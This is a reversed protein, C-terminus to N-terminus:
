SLDELRRQPDGRLLAAVAARAPKLRGTSSRGSTVCCCTQQARWGKSRSGPVGDMLRGWSGPAHVEGRRRLASLDIDARYYVGIDWDSRDTIRDIARSGGVVVAEVGDSAMLEDALKEVAAPARQSEAPVPPTM